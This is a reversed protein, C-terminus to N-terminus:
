RLYEAVMEAQLLLELLNKELVTVKFGNKLLFFASMLGIIGGGIITIHTKTTKEPPHTSLFEAL